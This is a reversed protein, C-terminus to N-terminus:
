NKAMRKVVDHQRKWHTAQQKAKELSAAATAATAATGRMTGVRTRHSTGVRTRYSGTRARGRARGQVLAGVGGSQHAAWVQAAAMAAQKSQRAKQLRAAKRMEKERLQQRLTARLSENLQPKQHSSAHWFIQPHIIEQLMQNYPAFFEELHPSTAELILDADPSSSSFSMPRRKSHPTCKDSGVAALELKEDFHLGTFRVILRVLSRADMQMLDEYKLFLFQDREFFRLAHEICVGYLSTQPYAMAKGNDFCKDLYHSLENTPLAKLLAPNRFLTANCLKLREIKAAMVAGFDVNKEWNWGLAFMSWESFARMIPDRMTVIFRLRKPDDASQRIRRMASADCLYNPTFDVLTLNLETASAWPTISRLCYADTMNFDTHLEDHWGCAPTWSAPLGHAIHECAPHTCKNPGGGGPLERYSRRLRGLSTKACRVGSTDCGRAGAVLRSDNSRM